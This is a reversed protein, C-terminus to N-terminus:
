PGFALSNLVLILALSSIMMFVNLMSRIEAKRASGPGTAKLAWSINSAM